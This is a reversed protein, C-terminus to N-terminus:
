DQGTPTPQANQPLWARAPLDWANDNIAALKGSRRLDTNLYQDIQALEHVDRLIKKQLVRNSKSLCGILRKALTRDRSRARLMELRHRKYMFYFRPEVFRVDDIILCHNEIVDDIGRAGYFTGYASDAPHFRIRREFPGPLGLTRGTEADPFLRARLPSSLILDLDGNERIGMLTLWASHVVAFEGPPLGAAVLEDLLKIKM